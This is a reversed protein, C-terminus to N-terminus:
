LCHPQGDFQGDFETTYVKCGRACPQVKWRKTAADCFVAVSTDLRTECQGKDALPAPCPVGDEVGTFDCVDPATTSSTVCGAPGPCDIETWHYETGLCWAATRSGACQMEGFTQCPTDIISCGAAAVVVVAMLLRM